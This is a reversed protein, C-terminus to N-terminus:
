NIAIKSLYVCVENYSVSYIDLLKCCSALMSKANLNAEAFVGEAIELPSRYLDPTKSFWPKEKVDMSMFSELPKVNHECLVEAVACLADRWSKINHREGCVEIAYPRCYEFNYTIPFAKDPEPNDYCVTAGITPSKEKSKNDKSDIVFSKMERELIANQVSADWKDFEPFDTHLKQLAKEKVIEEASPAFSKEIFRVFSNIKGDIQERKQEFTENFENIKRRDEENFYDLKAQFLDRIVNLESTANQLDRLINKIQENM